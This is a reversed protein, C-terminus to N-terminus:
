LITCVTASANVNAHPRFQGERAARGFDRALQGHQDATQNLFRASAERLLNLDNSLQAIANASALGTRNVETDITRLSTRVQNTLNRLNRQTDGVLGAVREGTKALYKDTTQLVQQTKRIAENIEKPTNETNHLIRTVSDIMENLQDEKVQIKQALYNYSNAVFGKAWFLHHAAQAKAQQYTQYLAYAVTLLFCLTFFKFYYNDNKRDLSFLYAGVTLVGAGTLLQSVNFNIRTEKAIAKIRDGYNLAVPHFIRGPITLCNESLYNIFNRRSRGNDIISLPVIAQELNSLHEANLEFAKQAKSKLQELTRDNPVEVCGLVTASKLLINSAASKIFLQKLLRLQTNIYDRSTNNLDDFHILLALQVNATIPFQVIGESLEELTIRQFIINNGAIREDLLVNYIVDGSIDKGAFQFNTGTLYEFYRDNMDSPMIVLVHKMSLTRM